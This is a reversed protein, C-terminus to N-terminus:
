AIHVMCAAACVAINKAAVSAPGCTELPAVFILDPFAFFEFMRRMYAIAAFSQVPFRHGASKIALDIKRIICVPFIAGQELIAAATEIQSESLQDVDVVGYRRQDLLALRGVVDHLVIHQGHAEGGEVPDYVASFEFCAVDVELLFEATFRAFGLAMALFDRFLYLLGFNTVHITIEEFIHCIVICEVDLHVTHDALPIFRRGQESDM